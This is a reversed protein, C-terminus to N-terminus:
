RSVGNRDITYNFGLSIPLVRRVYLDVWRGIDAIGSRPVIVVDFAQLPLDGSLDSGSMVADLDLKMVQRQGQAGRRMLLVNQPLATDKMGEAVMVAQLVTLPGALPQMGPKAVEGGVFVRQTLAAQVNIALQTRKVQPALLREVTATLEAITMGEVGLEGILPLSIRGDSRVIAQMNLEPTYFFRLQLEDGRTIRYDPSAPAIPARTDAPARASIDSPPTEPAAQARTGSWALGAAVLGTLAIRRIPLLATQARAARQEAVRDHASRRRMDRSSEYPTFM